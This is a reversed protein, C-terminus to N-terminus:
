SCTDELLGLQSATTRLDDTVEVVHADACAARATLVVDHGPVWATARSAERMLRKARNRQVAGGVRRSAVVAVRSADTDGRSRDHVVLLRGARSRRAAFVARIDSSSRLRGPSVTSTM